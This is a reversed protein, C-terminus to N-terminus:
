SQLLGLAMKLIPIKNQPLTHFEKRGQWCTKGDMAILKEM